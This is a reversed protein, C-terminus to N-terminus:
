KEELAVAAEGIAPPSLARNIIEALLPARLGVLFGASHDKDARVAGPINNPDVHVGGWDDRLHALGRQYEEDTM